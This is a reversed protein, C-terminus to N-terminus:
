VSMKYILSKHISIFYICLLAESHGYVGHSQEKNSESAAKRGEYSVFRLLVTRSRVLPWELARM